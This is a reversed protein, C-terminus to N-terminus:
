LATITYIMFDPYPTQKYTPLKSLEKKHATKTKCLNKFDTRGLVTLGFFSIISASTTIIFLTKMKEKASVFIIHEFVKTIV